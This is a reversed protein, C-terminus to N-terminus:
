DYDNFWLVFFGVLRWLVVGVGVGVVRSESWRTAPKTWLIM